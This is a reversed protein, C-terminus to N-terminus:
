TTGARNQRSGPTAFGNMELVFRELVWQIKLFLPVRSHRLNSSNDNQREATALPRCWPHEPIRPLCLGVSRNTKENRWFIRQPVTTWTAKLDFRCAFL